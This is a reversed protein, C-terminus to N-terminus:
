GAVGSGLGEGVRLRQSVKFGEELVTAAEQLSSLSRLLEGLNSYYAPVPQKAQWSWCLTAWHTM